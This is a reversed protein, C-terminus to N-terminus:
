KLTNYKGMIRKTKVLTYLGGLNDRDELVVGPFSKGGTDIGLDSRARGGVVGGREDLGEACVEEPVRLADDAGPSHQALDVEQSQVVLVILSAVHHEHGMELVSDAVEIDACLNKEVTSQYLYAQAREACSQNVLCLCRQLFNAAAVSLLLEECLTQLHLAECLDRRFLFAKLALSLKREVHM